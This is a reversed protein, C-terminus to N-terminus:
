FSQGTHLDLFYVLQDTLQNFNSFGLSGLSLVPLTVLLTFLMKQWFKQGPPPLINSNPDIESGNKEIGSDSEQISTQM